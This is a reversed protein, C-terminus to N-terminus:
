KSLCSKQQLLKWLLIIIDNGYMNKWWERHIKMMLGIIRFLVKVKMLSNNVHNTILM